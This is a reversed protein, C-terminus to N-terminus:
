CALLNASHTICPQKATDLASPEDTNESSRGVRRMQRSHRTMTSRRCGSSMAIRVGWWKTGVHRAHMVLGSILVGHTPLEGRDRCFVWFSLPARPLESAPEEFWTSPLDGPQFVEPVTKQATNQKASSSTVRLHAAGSWVLSMLCAFTRM